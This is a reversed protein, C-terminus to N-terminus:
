KREDAIPYESYELGIFRLVGDSSRMFKAEHLYFGAEEFQKNASELFHKVEESTIKRKM